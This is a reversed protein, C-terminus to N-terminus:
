DKKLFIYKIGINFEVAFTRASKYNNNFNAINILGQQYRVGPTIVIDKTIYRDQEIGLIIGIDTSNFETKVDQNNRSANSLFGGYVGGILNTSYKKNDFTSQNNMKKALLSITTYNLSLKNSLNAESTRKAGSTSIFNINSELNFKDSFIYGVTTGISYGFALQQQEKINDVGSIPKLKTILAQNKFGTNLGVYFRRAYIGFAFYSSFRKDNFIIKNKEKKVLFDKFELAKTNFNIEQQELISYNHAEFTSTLIPAEKYSYNDWKLSSYNKVKKELILNITNNNSIHTDRNIKKHSITKDFLADSKNSNTKNEIMKGSASIQEPQISPTIKKQTSQNNYLTLKYNKVSDSYSVYTLYSGFLFIFLASIRLSFNRWWILRDYSNLSSYVRTWVNQIDLKTSLKNWVQQDPTAEFNTIENKYWVEIHDDPILNSIESKNLQDAINKWGNQDPHVQFNKLENKYWDEININNKM